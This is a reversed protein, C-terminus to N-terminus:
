FEAIKLSFPIYGANNEEAVAFADTHM